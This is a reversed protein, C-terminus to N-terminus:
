ALPSPIQQKAGVFFATGALALSGFDCFSAKPTKLQALYELQERLGGRSVFIAQYLFIGALLCPKTPFSSLQSKLWGIMTKYHSEIYKRVHIYYQHVQKLQKEAQKIVAEYLDSLFRPNHLYEIPIYPQMKKGKFQNIWFYFAKSIIVRVKGVHRKEAAVYLKRCVKFWDQQIREDKLQYQVMIEEINIVEEVFENQSNGM